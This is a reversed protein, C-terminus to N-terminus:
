THGLDMDFGVEGACHFGLEQHEQEGPGALLLPLSIGVVEMGGASLMM